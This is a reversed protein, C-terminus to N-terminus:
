SRQHPLPHNISQKYSDFEPIYYKLKCAMAEEHSDPRSSKLSTTGKYWTAKIYGRDNLAKIAKIISEHARFREIRSTHKPDGSKHHFLKRYTLCDYNPRCSESNRINTYHAILKEAVIFESESEIRLLWPIFTQPKTKGKFLNLFKVSLKVILLGRRNEIVSNPDILKIAEITRNKLRNKEVKRSSASTKAKGCHEMIYDLDIIIQQIGEHDKIINSTIRLLYFVKRCFLRKHNQNINQITNDISNECLLFRVNGLDHSKEKEKSAEHLIETNHEWIKRFEKKPDKGISILHNCTEGIEEINKFYKAISDGNARIIETTTNLTDSLSKFTESKLANQGFRDMTIFAANVKNEVAKLLDKNKSLANILPEGIYRDFFQDDLEHDQLKPATNQAFESLSILNDTTEPLDKSLDDFSLLRLPDSTKRDKKDSM